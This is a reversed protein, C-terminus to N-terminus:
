IQKSMSLFVVSNRLWSLRHGLWTEFRAHGSYLESENRHSGSWETECEKAWLNYTENQQFTWWKTCFINWKFNAVSFPIRLKQPPSSSGTPQLATYDPLRAFVNRNFMAEIQLTSGQSTLCCTGGFRRSEWGAMSCLTPGIICFFRRYRRNHKMLCKLLNGPTWDEDEIHILPWSQSIRQGSGSSTSQNINSSCYRLLDTVILTPQSASRSIYGNPAM